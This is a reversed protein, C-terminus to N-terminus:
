RGYTATLRASALAGAHAFFGVMAGSATADLPLTKQPMAYLTIQYRHTAGQPPCAGSFGNQSFDNRAAIAGEPLAGRPLGTSDGPIDFVSWHWLGSGTPADPDYMTVIYSQTGAPAGSWHLAPATNGGSCGMGSLVQAAGIRGGDALDPSTLELGTGAQALAPLLLALALGAATSCRPIPSISM